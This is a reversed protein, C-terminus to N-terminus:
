EVRVLDGELSVPHGNGLQGVGQFASVLKSGTPVTAGDHGFTAMCLKAEFDFPRQFETPQM